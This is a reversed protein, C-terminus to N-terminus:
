CNKVTNCCSALKTDNREVEYWGLRRRGITQDRTRQKAIGHMILTNDCSGQPFSQWINTAM